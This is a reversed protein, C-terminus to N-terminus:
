SQQNLAREIDAYNYYYINGIKAYKLTGNIRLTQLTGSSVKLIKRVENSKLWQKHPQPNNGLIEKLEHILNNRFEILDGKTILQGHLQYNEPTM